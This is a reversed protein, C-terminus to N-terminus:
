FFMKEAIPKSIYADFGHALLTERDRTIACATLAIVPIHQLKANNRIAKFSVLGDIDPLAIDMLILNPKYQEAKAISEYGNVAEIITCTNALM